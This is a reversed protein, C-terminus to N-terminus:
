VPVAVGAVRSLQDLENARFTAQVGDFARALLAYENGNRELYGCVIELGRRLLYIPRSWGTKRVESRPDPPVSIKELLLWSGPGIWPDLGSISSGHALRVVREDCIRLQPFKMSLLSPWEGFEECRSKWVERPMPLYANRNAIWADELSKASILTELSFRGRDSVWSGGSRLADTYRAVHAVSLYILTNVHPDSTTASRYRRESRESLKANLKGKLFDRISQHEELPRQFRKRKTALLRDRTAHEWPLILDACPRCDPLFQLSPYEPIPLGMAFMRIRGAIRVAGPYLFEEPGRYIRESTLLQLRGRSVVCHSCRYGNGFQLLYISRPNPSQKEGESIPEVLGLSGPPISSGLSDETGVHVYFTGPQQWGEGDLVRIPLDNQWEAVLERLQADVEFAKDPALRGPLDILLDRAFPYSEIIHTRGGNLQLDYARIAELDYGFLRHAGEITLSCVDAVDLVTKLTPHPGTRPLNSLLDRIVAERREQVRAGREGHPPIRRYLDRIHILVELLENRPVAKYIV